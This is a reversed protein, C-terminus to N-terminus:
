FPTNLVLIYSSSIGNGGVLLIFSSLTYKKPHAVLCGVENHDVQLRTISNFIAHIEVVCEGVNNADQWM